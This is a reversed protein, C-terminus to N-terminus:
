SQYSRKIIDRLDYNPVRPEFSRQLLVVSMGPSVSVNEAKEEWSEVEEASPFSGHMAQIFGLVLKFNKPSLVGYEYKLDSEHFTWYDTMLPPINQVLRDYITGLLHKEVSPVGGNYHYVTPSALACPVVTFARTGSTFIFGQFSQPLLLEEALALQLLQIPVQLSPIDLVLWDPVNELKLPKQSRTVPVKEDEGSSVSKTTDKLDQPEESM